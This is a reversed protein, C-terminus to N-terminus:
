YGRATWSGSGTVKAGAQNYLYVIFDVPNAVDAFDVVPILPVTGNPQVLPTNADVFALNFPVVVGTTANSIVFSGSDTRLKSSLKFSLTDLTLLNAGATCSLSIVVRIYRFSGTILATFGAPAATWPDGVLLKSYIQCAVAVTGTLVTYQATVTISTASLTAGYDYTEDYSGSTTSPQAYLPYGADIQDQPTTWGNATYHTAWSQSTNVPGVLVDGDAFMNTKTGTFTSQVLRRLVYDPPETVTATIGGATGVNGATDIGAVWYTYVGAAQEFIAAFTSNGNSGVTAGGGYTAGKRVEYREVPLSGSSPPAWYLLVNNDVVENRRSTPAGPATITFDVSRPTGINGRVDVTAVWWRRLGLWDVRRTHRTTSFVGLKTASAYSTGYRIEYGAIAFAAARGAYDLQLDSGILTAIVSDISGAAITVSMSSPESANGLADIAAVWVKIVGVSQVAWLYSTGANRDLVQASAWSSGVRWDYAVVDPEPNKVCYFRVGFPELEHDLGTPASPPLEAMYGLVTYVYPDVDALSQEGGGYINFSTFKFSLAKGIYSLDLPGSKALAEDIRVFPAGASHAAKLSGYSGRQLGALTYAGAGTLTAVQHALYEPAAGGVWCLTALAEADAASGSKLQSDALGEVDMSSATSTMSSALTGYRAAGYVTAARKYEAGDLSVWVGCGGWDASQGRVACYVELGTETREVPAELFVPEAVSGPVANYDHAFGEGGQSPYLAASATGPPYDECTVALDGDESEEVVTVRTPLKDMQLTADTLTVLDMPELLAYHWPLPVQYEATVYLSRQMLIQAVKRAISAKCIWHARIVESSRLGTADIDAQDKAEAIEVNYQKNRNRFEVRVHNHRISM